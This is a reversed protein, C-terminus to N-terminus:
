QRFIFKNIKLLYEGIVTDFSLFKPIGCIGLITYILFRTILSYLKWLMLNLSHM